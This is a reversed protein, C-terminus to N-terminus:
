QLTLTQMELTNKAPFFVKLVQKKGLRALEIQDKERSRGSVQSSSVTTKTLLHPNGDQFSYLEHSSAM